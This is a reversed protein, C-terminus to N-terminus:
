EEAPPPPGRRPGWPGGERRREAHRKKLTELKTRQAESLTGALEADMTDRLARVKPANEEFLAEFQPRYREFVVRAQEHQATTLDLEEYPPPLRQEHPPGRDARGRRSLSAFAGAGAAAGMAFTLLLVLVAMLRGKPADTGM